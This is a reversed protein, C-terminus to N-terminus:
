KCTNKIFEKLEESNISSKLELILIEDINISYKKALYKILTKKFNAKGLETFLDEYFYSAIVSNLSDLLYSNKENLDDAIFELSLKIQKLSSDKSYVDSIFDSIKVSNAYLNCFLLLFIILKKM